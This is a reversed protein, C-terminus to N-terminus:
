LYFLHLLEPPPMLSAHELGLIQAIFLSLAVPSPILSTHPLPVMLCSCLQHIKHLFRACDLSGFLGVCLHWQTFVSFLPLLGGLPLSNIIVRTQM